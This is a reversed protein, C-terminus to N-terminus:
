YMKDIYRILRKIDVTVVNNPYKDFVHMKKIMTHIDIYMKNIEKEFEEKITMKKFLYLVVLCNHLFYTTIKSSEIKIKYKKYYSEVIESSDFGKIENGFLINGHSTLNRLNKAIYFNTLDEDEINQHRLHLTYIELIEGFSLFENLVWTPKKNRFKSKMKKSYVDDYDRIRKEIRSEIKFRKEIDLLEYYYFPKKEINMEDIANIFYVKFYSEIKQGISSFLYRIENGILALEYIDSFDIGNYDDIGKESKFCEFFHKYLTIQHLYIHASLIEKAQDEKVYEFKMNREKFFSIQENIDLYKNM